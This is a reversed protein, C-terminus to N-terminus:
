LATAIDNIFDSMDEVFHKSFANYANSAQKKAFNLFDSNQNTESSVKLLNSFYDGMDIDKFEIPQNIYEDRSLNNEGIADIQDQLAEAYDTGELPEIMLGAPAGFNGLMGNTQSTSNSNLQKELLKAFTDDDMDFNLPKTIGGLGQTAIKNVLSEVLSM